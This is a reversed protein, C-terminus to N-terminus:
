ALASIPPRFIQDIFPSTAPAREVELVSPGAAIPLAPPAIVQPPLTLDTEDADGSWDGGPMPLEARDSVAPAHSIAADLAVLAVVFALLSLFRSASV